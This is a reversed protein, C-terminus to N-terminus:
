RMTRGQEEHRLAARRPENPAPGSRDLRDGGRGGQSISSYTVGNETKTLPARIPVM